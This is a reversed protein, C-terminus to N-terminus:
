WMEKALDELTYYPQADGYLDRTSPVAQWDGFKSAYKAYTLDLELARSFLEASNDYPLLELNNLGKAYYQRVYLACYYCLLAKDYTNGALKVREKLNELTFFLAKADKASFNYVKCSKSLMVHSIPSIYGSPLKKYLKTIYRGVSSDGCAYILELLNGLCLQCDTNKAAFIEFKYEKLFKGFNKEISYPNYEFLEKAFDYFYTDELQSGLFLAVKLQKSPNNITRILALLIENRSKKSLSDDCVFNLIKVADDTGIFTKLTDFISM